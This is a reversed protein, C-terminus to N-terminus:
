GCRPDHGFVRALAFRIGVRVRGATRSSVATWDGPARGVCGRGALLAWYSSFRVRVVSTGAAAFRLEFGQPSIRTVTAPAAALSRAGLVALVRWHRSRWVPRLYGPGAAILAAEARASYDLQADALAVYRIAHEDLWRRYTTADLGPRYFIPNRGIDLQREWGRGLPYRSAVRAAEFHERTLPIEIRFPGPQSRLWALLPRYYAAGTSPDSAAAAVDRAPAQLQWYALPLALLALAYRGRLGPRDYLALALVPGGFLAGLRAANGGVPTSLAFSAASALAYLAVGARLTRREGPVLALIALTAAFGPWFSSPAFPERGDEGFALALLALALLTAVVLLAGTTRAARDGAPPAAVVTLATLALFAGALPTVLTAAVALALAAVRRGRALALLAALGVATGLLFPMRGALLWEAVGLAFWAGAVHARAPAAATAPVAIRALAAFAAAAAVVAVAGVVRVGLLWGLPPFLVSYSLTQHGAYWGNDWIAFGTRGFLDSRYLQAALDRSAPAVILYALALAAAIAVPVLRVGRPEGAASL